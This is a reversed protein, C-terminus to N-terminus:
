PAGTAERALSERLALVRKVYSRTSKLGFTQVVEAGPLGRGKKRWADVRRPGAHYAALALHRDGRYRGLLEKLYQGGILANDKPERLSWTRMGLREAVAEGTAPMVQLLGVAGKSSRAREDFGSEVEALALLLPPRLGLRRATESVIRRNERVRAARSPELALQTGAAALGAAALVALARGRRTALFRRVRAQVEQAM